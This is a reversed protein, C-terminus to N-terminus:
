LDALLLGPRADALEDVCRGEADWAASRGAAHLGGTCGAYNALLVPMAHARARQSARERESSMASPIVFASALYLQAGAEACAAAHEPRGLDACIALACRRGRCDFLLPAAGPEFVAAEHPPLEAGAELDAADRGSFGGLNMKAYVLAPANPRLVLACLVLRGRELLPAGLVVTVGLRDVAGQLPSWARDDRATARERARELAYGTWSLEPFVLLAAGAEAAVEIARLHTESAGRPEASAEIQAAAVRLKSM